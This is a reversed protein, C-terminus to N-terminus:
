TNVETTKEKDAVLIIHETEIMTAVIYSITAFKSGNCNPCTNARKEDFLAKMKDWARAKQEITM